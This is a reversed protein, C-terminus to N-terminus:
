SAAMTSRSSSTQISHLAHRFGMRNPAVCQTQLTDVQL